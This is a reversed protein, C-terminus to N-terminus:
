ISIGWESALYSVVSSRTSSDHYTGYILNHGQHGDFSRRTVLEQTMLYVDGHDITLTGVSQTRETGDFNWFATGNDADLGVGIVHPTGDQLSGFSEIPTNQTSGDGYQLRVDGNDFTINLGEVANSFNKYTAIACKNGGSQKYVLYYSLKNGLYNGDEFYDSDSLVAPNGNIENTQYTPTTSDAQTQDRGNGTEDTWTSVIEGDSLGTIQRADHNAQLNQADPIDVFGATQQGDITIESVDEGDITARQIESGDIDIPPSM